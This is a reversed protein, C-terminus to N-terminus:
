SISVVALIVAVVNVSVAVGTEPWGWALSVSQVLRVSVLVPILPPLPASEVTQQYVTENFLL